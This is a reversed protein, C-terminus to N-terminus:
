IFNLVISYRYYSFNKFNRTYKLLQYISIYEETDWKGAWWLFSLMSFGDLALAFSKVPRGSEEYCSTLSFDQSDRLGKM